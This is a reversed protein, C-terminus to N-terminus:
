PAVTIEGVAWPHDECHYLFTGPEDFTVFDWLGPELTSTSWRGDRAAVTHALEGNNTFRVRTGATVRARVPNFNHEDFAYRRGGVMNPDIQNDKTGAAHQEETWEAGNRHWSADESYWDSVDPVCRRRHLCRLGALFSTPM